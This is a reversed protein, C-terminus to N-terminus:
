QKVLEFFKHYPNLLFNKDLGFSTKMLSDVTLASFYRVVNFSPQGVKPELVEILIRAKENIAPIFQLIKSNSFAPNLIKRHKRWVDGSSALLGTKYPFYYFDARDICKESTLIVKVYEADRVDVMCFHFLFTYCINPFLEFMKELKQYLETPLHHM